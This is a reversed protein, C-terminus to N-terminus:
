DPEVIGLRVASVVAEIRTRVKLKWCVKEMYSDVTRPSISLIMGIDSSSKGRSVWQLCERERLSLSSTVSLPESNSLLIGEMWSQAFRRYVSSGRKSLALIKRALQMNKAPRERGRRSSCVEGAEYLHHTPRRSIPAGSSGPAARSRLRRPTGFCRAEKASSEL